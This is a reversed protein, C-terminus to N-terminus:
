CEGLQDLNVKSSDKRIWVRDGALCLEVYGLETLPPNPFDWMQELSLIVDPKLAEISYAYDWKNHGPYLPYKRGDKPNAVPSINAVYSDSKGLLDIMDRYIFYGSSGAWQVAVKAGPKTAAHMAISLEAQSELYPTPFVGAQVWGWYSRLSSTTLVCGSVTIITLISLTRLWSNFSRRYGAILVCVLAVLPALVQFVEFKPGLPSLNLLSTTYFLAVLLLLLLWSEGFRRGSRINGTHVRETLASMATFVGLALTPLGVALYRNFVTEQEWADGGVWITYLLVLVSVTACADILRRTLRTLHIFRSSVWVVILAIYIPIARPVSETLGRSFREPLSFGDLKLYYTNPLYDGYYIKQSILVLLVAAFVPVIYGLFVTRTTGLSERWVIFLFGLVIAILAFDLRTLIGVVASVSAVALAARKAAKSAGTAMARFGGFLIGLSCVALLGVEMGGLTWYTLPYLFPTTGGAICSAVLAFRSHGLVTQMTMAVLLAAILVLGCGLLMVTLQASSGELGIRHMGAMLLTWLPNTFGEVRPAGPFWVLEGTQAFTRAYTMSIMADDFLASAFGVSSSLGVRLVYVSMFIVGPILAIFVWLARRDRSQQKGLLAAADFILNQFV